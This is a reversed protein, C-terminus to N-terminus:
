KKLSPSSFPLLGLLVRFFFRFALTSSSNCVSFDRLAPSLTFAANAKTTVAGFLKIWVIKMVIIMILNSCLGVYKSHM